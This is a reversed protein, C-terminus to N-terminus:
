RFYARCIPLLRIVGLVCSVSKPRITTNCHVAINLTIVLCCVFVQGCTMLAYRISEPRIATNCCIVIGLTTALLHVYKVSCAILTCRVSEPRIATNCSIVISLTIALGCASVLGTALLARRHLCFVGLDPLFALWVGSLLSTM